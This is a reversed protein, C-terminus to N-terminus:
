TAAACVLFLPGFWVVRLRCRRWVRGAGLAEAGGLRWGGRCRAACGAWRLFSGPRWRRSFCPSFRRPLCRWGGIEVGWRRRSSLWWLHRPSFGCEAVGVVSRFVGAAVVTLLVGGYLRGRTVAHGRRSAFGWFWWGCWGRWFGCGGGGSFGGVRNGGADVGFLRFGASLYTAVAAADGLAIAVESCAVAVKLLLGMVLNFAPVLAWGGGVGFVGSVLGFVTALGRATRGAGYRVM